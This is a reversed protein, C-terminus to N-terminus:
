PLSQMDGLLNIVSSKGDLMLVKSNPSEGISQFAEIRKMDLINKSLTNNLMENRKQVAEAEIEIARAEAEARLVAAEAAAGAALLVADREGEAKIRAMEKQGEEQIIQRDMERRQQEAVFALRLAEQESELKREISESIREPLRINKLLVSEVVIGKPDLVEIMRDQIAREIEGRRASHMDKADYQSCIDAAASRYVPLILDQEYFLGTERILRPAEVARISYLISSESRITLGERSPLDEFISLNRTQVPIRILRTTFPNIAVPGPHKVEDSLRGITQKVGVQDPRVVACSSGLLLVLGMALLSKNNM